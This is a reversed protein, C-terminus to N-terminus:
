SLAFVSASRSFSKASRRFRSSSNERRATSSARPLGSSLAATSASAHTTVPPRPSDGCVASASPSSACSCTALSWSVRTQSKPAM